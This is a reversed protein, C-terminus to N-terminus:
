KPAAGLWCDIKTAPGAPFVNEHGIWGSIQKPPLNPWCHVRSNACASCLFFQM